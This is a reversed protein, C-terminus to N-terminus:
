EETQVPRNAYALLHFNLVLKLILLKEDFDMWTEHNLGPSCSLGVCSSTGGGVTPHPLSSFPYFVFGTQQSLSLKITFALAVCALFAFWVLSNIEM